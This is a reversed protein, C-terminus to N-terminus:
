LVFLCFLLSVMSAYLCGAIFTTVNSLLPTCLVIRFRWRMTLMGVLGINICRASFLCLWMFDIHLSVCFSHLNIRVDRLSYGVMFRRDVPVTMASMLSVYLFAVIMCAGLCRLSWTEVVVIAGCSPEEIMAMVDYM